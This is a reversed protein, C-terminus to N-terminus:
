SNWNMYALFFLPLIKRTQALFQKINQFIQSFEQVYIHFEISFQNKISNIMKYFWVGNVEVSKETQLYEWKGAPEVASKM